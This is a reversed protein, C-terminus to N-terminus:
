ALEAMKQTKTFSLNNIQYRHAVKEYVRKKVVIFLCAMHDTTQTRNQRPQAMKNIFLLARGFKHM